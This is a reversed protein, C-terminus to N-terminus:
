LQNIVKNKIEEFEEESIAGMDLLEKAKKIEDMSSTTVGENIQKEHTEDKIKNLREKIMENLISPYTRRGQFPALNIHSGDVFNLTLSGSLITNSIDSINIETNVGGTIFLKDDTLRVYVDKKQTKDGKTAAYGIIGLAITAGARTAGSRGKPPLEFVMKARGDLFKQQRRKYDEPKPTQTKEIFEKIALDERKKVENAIQEKKMKVKHDIDIDDEVKGSMKDKAILYIGWTVNSKMTILNLIGSFTHVRFDSTTIKAKNKM